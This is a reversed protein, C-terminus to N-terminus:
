PQRGPAVSTSPRPRSIRNWCSGTGACREIDTGGPGGALYRLVPNGVDTGRIMMALDHGGVAVRTLEAVGGSGPEGDPGLIQETGAPRLIAVTLGLLGLVLLATAVRRTWLGSRSWGGRGPDDEALRRAAAAGLIAGLLMPVLVLVAQLGRGLVFAVLGYTTGPHIGDVMPGDTGVRAAEFVAMFVVPGLPMAWRPRLVVGAAAGVLGGIVIAAVAQSTTVPGRPTWWAALLGYGGAALVAVAVAIRRDRWAPGVM